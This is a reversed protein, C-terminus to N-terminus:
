EIKWGDINRKESSFNIGVKIIPKGALAFRERYNKLNIQRMATQADANMKLEFLFLNNRTLLVIDVRGKPTHVEVDVLYDTLLSFVVFLLQQYHREYDTNDCYPVTALFTQLLELAGDIDGKDIAQAIRRATNTTTLTNTTVYSPILAKTLGVMVEKNPVDLTYFNYDKDYKKITIYGSQYLLPMITTMNETPVDFETADAEVRTMVDAPKVEFKRMM